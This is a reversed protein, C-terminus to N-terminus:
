KKVTRALSDLSTLKELLIGVDWDTDFVSSLKSKMSRVEEEKKALLDRVFKLDGKLYEVRQREEHLSMTSSVDVLLLIIVLMYCLLILLSDINM